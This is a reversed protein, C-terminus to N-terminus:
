VWNGGQCKMNLTNLVLSRVEEDLKRTEKLEM